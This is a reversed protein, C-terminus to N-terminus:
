RDDGSAVLRLSRPRARRSPRVGADDIDALLRAAAGPAWGGAEFVALFRIDDAFQDLSVEPARHAALDRLARALRRV